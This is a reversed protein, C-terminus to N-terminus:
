DSFPRRGIVRVRDPETVDYTVHGWGIRRTWGAAVVISLHFLDVAPQFVGLLYQIVRVSMPDPKGARAGVASVLIQKLLGLLALIALPLLNQYWIVLAIASGFAFARVALSGLAILWLDPRYVKGIQYQRRGFRWASAVDHDVPSDILLASRTAVRLGRESARIGISLDDSLRRQLCDSLDLRRATDVSMAISGGWTVQAAGLDLRPLLMMSRDIAVALHAGLRPRAASHWRHGTVIDYHSTVLPTLLMQLWNRSPLIDGDLLVIFDTSDPIQKLAVRQNRCKQGEDSALGAVVIRIPVQATAAVECANGFSPDDTSEVSILLESLKATQNDLRGCLEGLRAARGTLPLIAATKGDVEAMSLDMMLLRRLANILTLLNTLIGLFAVLELAMLAM